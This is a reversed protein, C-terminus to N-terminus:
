ATRPRRPRSRNWTGRGKPKDRRVHLHYVVSIRTGYLLANRSKVFSPGHGIVLGIDFDGLFRLHEGDRLDGGLHAKGLVHELVVALGLRLDIDVGKGVLGAAALEHEDRGDIRRRGALALRGGRDAEGVREVGHALLGHEAQALRGEAGDEADLAAGRAAAVRLDDGHLVDVQVEGAVEVGDARRVVQARGHEVVMDLLAVREADVRAADHPLANDIHVVTLKPLDYVTEAADGVAHRALVAEVDGHGGLDHGGEAERGVKHVEAVAQAAHDDGVGVIALGDRNGVDVGLAGHRGQELIGNLRVEDLRELAVGGEDVAPGERVDRM